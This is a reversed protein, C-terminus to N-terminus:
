SLKRVQTSGNTHRCWEYAAIPTRSNTEIRLWTLYTSHGCVCCPELVLLDQEWAEPLLKWQDLHSRSPSGRECKYSIAHGRQGIYFLCRFFSRLVVRLIEANVYQRDGDLSGGLGVFIIDTKIIGDHGFWPKLLQDMRSVPRRVLVIAILQKHVAYILATRDFLCLHFLWDMALWLLFSRIRRM